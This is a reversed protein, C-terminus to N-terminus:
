LQIDDSPEDPASSPQLLVRILPPILCSIAQFLSGCTQSEHVTVRTVLKAGNRQCAGKLYQFALAPDDMLGEKELSLLRLEKLRKEMFIHEMGGIM